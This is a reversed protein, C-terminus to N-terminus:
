VCKFEKIFEDSGQWAVYKDYLTRDAKLSNAIIERCLNKDSSKNGYVYIFEGLRVVAEDEYIFWKSNEEYLKDLEPKVREEEKRMAKIIEDIKENRQKREESDKDLLDIGSSTKMLEGFLEDHYKNIEDRKKWMDRQENIFDIVDNNSHVNLLDGYYSVVNGIISWDIDGLENEYTKSVKGDIIIHLIYDYVCYKSEPFRNYDLIIFNKGYNYHPKKYPVEDGTGYYKLDGGHLDVSDKYLSVWTFCKVQEGNITDYMGM